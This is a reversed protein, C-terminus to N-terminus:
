TLEPEPDFTPDKFNELVKAAGATAEPSLHMYRQTTALNTHGMLKQIQPASYGSMALRSAYTHRFTYPITDDNNLWPIFSRLKIWTDSMRKNSAWTFPGPQDAFRPDDRRRKIAARAAETLPVTRTQETKTKPAVFTVRGGTFDRWAVQRAENPRAGSDVLFQWLDAYPQLGVHNTWHMIQCQEDVTYYRDRGARERQRPMKLLGPILDLDYALEMMMNVASLKKNITKGSNGLDQRFMVYELIKAKTLAEAVPTAPGVWRLFLKGADPSADSRNERWCIKAARDFLAQMSDTTAATTSGAGKPDPFPDGRVHAAECEKIYAEAAKRTAFTGTVIPRGPFTKKVQFSSGREYIGKMAYEGESILEEVCFFFVGGLM